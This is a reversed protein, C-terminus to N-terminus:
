STFSPFILKVAGAPLTILKRIFYFSRTHLHLLLTEAALTEGSVHILRLVKLIQMVVYGSQILFQLYFLRKVLLPEREAFLAVQKQITHAPGAPAKHLKPSSHLLIGAGILFPACARTSIPLLIHYVPRLSDLIVANSFHYM